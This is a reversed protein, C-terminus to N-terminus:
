SQFIRQNKNYPDERGEGEQDREEGRDQMFPHALKDIFLYQLCRFTCLTPLCRYGGWVPSKPLRHNQHTKQLSSLTELHLDLEGLPDKGQRKKADSTRFISMHPCPARRSCISIGFHAAALRAQRTHPAADNESMRGGPPICGNRFRLKARRSAWGWAPCELGQEGTTGQANKHTRPHARVRARRGRQGYCSM